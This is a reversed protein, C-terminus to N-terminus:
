GLFGKDAIVIIDLQTDNIIKFNNKDIKKGCNLIQRGDTSWLELKIKESNLGHNLTYEYYGTTDNKVLNSSTITVIYNDVVGLTGILSQATTIDSELSTKTNSATTNLSTLSTSLSNAENIKTTALANAENIENLYTAGGWYGSCIVVKVDRKEDIIIKFNNKDIVKGQCLVMENNSWVQVLLKDSALKHNVTHTYKKYGNIEEEILNSASISECYNDTKGIKNSLDTADPIISNLDNKLNTATTISGDLGTKLTKGNNITTNVTDNTKNATNNTSTLMDNTNKATNNMNTLSSLTSKAKSDTTKLNNITKIANAIDTEINALLVELNDQKVEVTQLLETLGEIKVMAEEVTRCNNLFEELTEIVNGNNDLRTFIKSASIMFLGNSYFYLSFAQGILDKSVMIKDNIYDIYYARTIEELDEVNQVRVMNEPTTFYVELTEDIIGEAYITRNNGIIGIQPLHVSFQNGKEDTFMTYKFTRYMDSKCLDTLTLM